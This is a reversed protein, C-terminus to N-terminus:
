FSGFGSTSSPHLVLLKLVILRSVQSLSPISYTAGNVALMAALSSDVDEDGDVGASSRRETAAGQLGWGLLRLADM